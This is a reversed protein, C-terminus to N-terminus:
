NLQQELAKLQKLYNQVTKPNVKLGAARCNIALKTYRQKLEAIKEKLNTETQQM